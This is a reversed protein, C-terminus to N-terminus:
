KPLGKILVIQSAQREATRITGKDANLYRNGTWTHPQICLLFTNPSGTEDSVDIMAGYEWSGFGGSTAPAGTPIPYGSSSGPVNYKAADSANRRHDLEFVKKLQKSAIDYQYILADHTQDNYGSNPDEQVYVFNQTVMINDPNQFDKAIGTRNDGDLVVELKGKTPDTDNLNLKYVRGYKSRSNDANSGTNNQGTVTFYLERNNAASGKRYDIDEVRGFRIANATVSALNLQRGTLTSANDIKVFEVDYNAGEVMDREKFNNNSRKMIYLSGTILDGVRDSIYVVVQGGEANSDDDGIVIVTKGPFANKNLPVANEANWRGLGALEKSQGPNFSLALPDVGHTRSEEGSEGCTLFLPGFGHEAQTALTASCLRWLGGTSNLIYEGKIPKLSADLTLRSVAFNDEHNVLYTFTGDANKLFGAGDASGGFVYGASAPIDDDSGIVSYVKVDAFGPLVNVLPNTVSKNSFSILSAALVEDKKKCSTFALSLSAITALSLTKFNSQM